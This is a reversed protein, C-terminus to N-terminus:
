MNPLLAYFKLKILIYFPIFKSELLKKNKTCEYYLEEYCKKAYQPNLKKIKLTFYLLTGFYKNFALKIFKTDKYYNFIERTAIVKDYHKISYIAERTISNDRKIVNYGDFDVFVYGNTKELLHYQIFTDEHIRGEEFQLNEFLSHHFMKACVQEKCIKEDLLYAKIMEEYDIVKAIYEQNEQFDDKNSCCNCGATQVNYEKIAKFMYELFYPSLIDDSDLFCIYEGHAEKLGKNRANSVGGNKQSYYHFKPKDEIYKKIRNPSDDTSGDNIIIAEYNSYTQKRVSELANLVYDQTNYVPIIISILDNM